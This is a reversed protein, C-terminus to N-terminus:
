FFNSVGSKKFNKIQFAKFYWAGGNWMFFLVFVFCWFLWLFCVEIMLNCMKLIPKQISNSRRTGFIWLWFRVGIHHFDFLLIIFQLGNQWIFFTALHTQQNITREPNQPHTKNLKISTRSLIVFKKVNSSLFLSQTMWHHVLQVLNLKYYGDSWDSM